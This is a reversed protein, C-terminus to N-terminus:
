DVKGSSSSLVFQHSSHREHRVGTCLMNLCNYTSGHPQQENNMGLRNDLPRVMRSIKPCPM